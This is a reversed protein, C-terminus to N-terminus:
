ISNKLWSRENEYEERARFLGATDALALAFEIFAKGKATVINDHVVVDEDRLDADSFLAIEPTGAEFRIFHGTCPTNKLIGSKALIFTGGCIGGIITKRRHLEAIFRLLEPNDQISETIGGPVIFVDIDDLSLEDLGYDVVVKQGETSQYIGKELGVALINQKRFEHCAFVVEHNAFQEFYFICVNM